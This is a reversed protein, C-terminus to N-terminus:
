SQWISKTSDALSMLTHGREFFSIVFAPIILAQLAVGFGTLALWLLGQAVWAIVSEIVVVYLVLLPLFIWSGFDATRKEPLALAVALLVGATFLLGSLVSQSIGARIVDFTVPVFGLVVNIPSLQCNPMSQLPGSSQSPVCLLAQYSSIYAKLLAWPNWASVAGLLSQDLGQLLDRVQPFEAILLIASLLFTIITWPGIRRRRAAGKNNAADAM